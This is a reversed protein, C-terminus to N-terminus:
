LPNLGAEDARYVQNRGGQKARYLADDAARLLEVGDPADDPFCAVGGSITVKGLPQTSGGEFPYDEIRKRVMGAATM